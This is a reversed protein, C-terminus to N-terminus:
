LSNAKVYILNLNEVMFYQQFILPPPMASNFYLATDDNVPLADPLIKSCISELNECHELHTNYVCHRM